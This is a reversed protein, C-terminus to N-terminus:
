SPRKPGTATDESTVRFDLELGGKRKHEYGTREDRLNRLFPM